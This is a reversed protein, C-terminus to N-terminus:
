RRACRGSSTASCSSARSTPRRERGLPHVDRRVAPGRRRAVLVAQRRRLHPLSGLEAHRARPSLAALRRVSRPPPQAQRGAAAARVDGRQRQAAVRGARGDEPVRSQASPMPAGYWKVYFRKWGNKFFSNFGLDNHGTAARISGQDMLAVAEDRISRGTPACCTSSPFRARTSSPGRAAGGLVPVHARQVAGHHDLPRHAAQGALPARPRPFARVAGGRRVRVGRHVEARAPHRRRSPARLDHRALAARRASQIRRAESPEYGRAASASRSTPWRTPVAPLVERRARHPLAVPGRPALSSAILHRAVMRAIRAIDRARASTARAGKSTCRTRRARRRDRLGLRAAAILMESEFTFSARAITACRPQRLLARLLAAPYARQGSQSDVIPHGAAWSLWFDAVGNAIRRARPARARDRLRAAIVLRHPISSRRRSSGRCTRRASAPRRRRAHRRLRRRQALAARSATGCARRRAATARTRISSWPCAPSADGRHRRDLRRRRRHRPACSRSRAHRSTACRRPKTTRRSHRDRDHM